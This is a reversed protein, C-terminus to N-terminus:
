RVQYNHLILVGQFINLMILPLTKKDTNDLLISVLGFSLVKTALLSKETKMLPNLERDERIFDQSQVYDVYNLAGYSVLLVKDTKTWPTACGFLSTGLLVLMLNKLM